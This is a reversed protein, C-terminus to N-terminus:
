KYYFWYTYFFTTEIEKADFYHKNKPRLPNISRKYSWLTCWSQSSLLCVAGAACYPSSRELCSLSVFDECNFGAWPSPRWSLSTEMNIDESSWFDVIALLGKEQRRLNGEPVVPSVYVQKAPRFPWRWHWKSFNKAPSGIFGAVLKNAPHEYSKRRFHALRGRGITEPNWCTAPRGSMIVICDALTAKQKPRANCTDTTAGIRCHAKYDRRSLLKCSWGFTAFNMWLFVKCRAYAGM